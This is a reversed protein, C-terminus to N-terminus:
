IIRMLLMTQSSSFIYSSCFYKWTVNWTTVQFKFPKIQAMFDAKHLPLNKLLSLSTQGAATLLFGARYWDPRFKWTPRGLFYHVLESIDFDKEFFRNLFVACFIFNEMLFKKLLHSWIRLFRCIYDCKSFFDKIFFSCIKHLLVHSPLSLFLINSVFCNILM